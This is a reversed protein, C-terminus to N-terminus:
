QVIVTGRLMGMGCTFNFEGAKDPTFEVVVPENLPLARSINHAPIAIEKGCTEEIRRVFTIRAPVGRRLKLSAPQYGKDTLTVTASQISKHNQEAGGKKQKQVGLADVMFFPPAVLTLCFTIIAIKNKMKRM